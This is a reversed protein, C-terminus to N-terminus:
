THSDLVPQWSEPRYTMEVAPGSQELARVIQLAHVTSRSVYEPRRIESTPLKETGQDVLISRCGARHGAEVDDLIDGLFWSQQLDLHLDEAAQRLMGPRPKRCDCVKTLEPVQGEPHHPCFYIGDIRVGLAALESRLYGHMLDLDAETFLGRALGAQNTIIVISFGAAQLAQLEPGIGEYLVLQEPRSPYHRPYVLTGDRDLFLARPTPNSM